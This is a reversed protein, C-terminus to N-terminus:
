GGNEVVHLLIQSILKKSPKPLKGKVGQCVECNKIIKAGAISASVM